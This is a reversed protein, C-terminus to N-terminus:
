GIDLTHSGAASSIRRTPALATSRNRVGALFRYESTATGRELTVAMYGRHATDAWKLQYNMEVAQAAFDDPRIWPLYGEAGPSTVSHGAFEIGAPAGSSTLASAWANHSDGSLVILNADAEQASSLLRDRAAPYGDWADMNFPLGAMSTLVGGRIRQQIYKPVADTMGNALDPSSMLSTMVVQQLLVQWVKGAQRSARMGDALWAEQSAGMLSRSPDRWEDAAFARLATLMRDPKDGGRKIIDGLDFPKDRGTLRTELRFLTALDGLEYAAWPADSVPMWERMAKVSARKRADWSGESDPQHNEAGDRYSDNASEHDDPVHLMPFLQHLRQLDPDRRYTAYRTRYDALAIIESDIGRMRGEVAQDQTPYVGTGYEYIYDGTHLVLDTDDAEAIHAYANFWGFGINSCGVVALRFRDTRGVPLTRTRGICSMAGDEAIFRYYYWSDPELGTAVPKVCFDNDPSAAVSGGALIRTFDIDSAVEWRVDRTDGTAYRTWLMVRDPGPEGSAVGHAFGEGPDALVMSPLGALGAGILGSKFLSRRNFSARGPASPRQAAPPETKM